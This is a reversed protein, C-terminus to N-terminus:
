VAGQFKFPIKVDGRVGQGRIDDSRGANDRVRWFVRALACIGTPLHEPFCERCSGAFLQFGMRFGMRFGTCPRREPKKSVRAFSYLGPMAPQPSKTRGTPTPIQRALM